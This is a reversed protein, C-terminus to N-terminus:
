LKCLIKVNLMKDSSSATQALIALGNLSSLESFHRALPVLLCLAMFPVIYMILSTGGM